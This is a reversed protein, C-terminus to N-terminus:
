VAALWEKATGVMVAGGLLTLLVQARAPGDLRHLVGLAGTFPGAVVRVADGAAMAAGGFRVVGRSDCAEVLAEVVGPAVAVPGDSDSILREVGRTGNVRRWGPRERDIIVFLYGPFLPVIATRFQRAHRRTETLTPLFGCFGQRVLNDLALREKRPATAAVHWREHSGLAFQSRTSAPGESTHRSTTWLSPAMTM